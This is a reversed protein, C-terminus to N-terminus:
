RQRGDGNAVECAREVGLLPALALYTLLPAVEPLTEPGATRIQDHMARYIAGVIAELTIEAVDPSDEHRSLVDRLIGLGARDRQVIAPPGAAYVEIMRLQAFAPESALFGCIGGLAVRVARPWDPARNAAPMAAAVMQAGSSDIAASLADAKDTFHAYFTSQSIAAAAAIDAITTEGYGKEAVVRSFARIIRQEPDFSAFPPMTGELAVTGRRGRLQLPQPPPRYTLAWDWLAPVLPPLEAERHDQLRSYVIRDFGGVIAAALEAPMGQHGPVQDIAGRGLLSLRAVAARVQAAAPEGAAYSEVLCMRAAAPQGVVTDIFAELATLAQQERSGDSSLREAVLTVGGGLIEAIADLFCDLKDDFLDYFTGRSVGSLELLHAITTAEYGREACSAVMAAYLRQRQNREAKERPVGGGPPLRRGRLEGSEGWPTMVM